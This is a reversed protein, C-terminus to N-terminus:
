ERIGYTRAVYDFMSVFKEAIETAREHTMSNVSAQISGENARPEVSTLEEQLLRFDDRLQEPLDQPRLRIIQSMYADALRERIGAPGGALTLIGAFLREWTYALSM